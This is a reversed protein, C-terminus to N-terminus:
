ARLEVRRAQWPAAPETAGKTRPLLHSFCQRKLVARAWLGSWLSGEQEKWAGDSAEIKAGATANRVLLRSQTTFHEVVM